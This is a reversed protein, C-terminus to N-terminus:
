HGLANDADSLASRYAGCGILLDDSLPLVYSSKGKVTGTVLNIINYEVWGGGQECRHWADDLLQQADVGPADFLSTGVRKRDAGMIRYIGQRDFVFVYLDRDVFGGQPDHLVDAAADFGIEQVLAHARTTLVLAEDATGQRLKIYTVADELQRSRQMLRASRHSTRDVLGSNEITVKDLDGVAQVVEALAISQKASGDAMAEVNQAIESIGTVLSGMLNSVDRIEQVTASVRSASDAILSRVEGAAVQSRRALARVEAAVVAFGKGQEGARAAEVAANLALLNTQFAIGDITGIIERMRDSTSQLGAMAGVTKGMLSSANDAELRLSRTMLSVEQAAESNRAVTDSVQGVNSTAEELSVAQSQTRQSLSHGDEVLQGGVHTVMSSASRVDAVLTSLVELMAEFERSIQALEDQGPVVVRTALNGQTGEQIARHLISISNVTAVSFCVLLYMVALIGVTALTGLIIAQRLAFQQRQELRGVLMTSAETRFTRGTEIAKGSLAFLAESIQPSSEKGVQDRLAQTLASTASVAETGSPPITGKGARQFAEFKENVLQTRLDVQDTTGALAAFAQRDAAQGQWIALFARMNSVGELWPIALETLVAQLFYTDPFPDLVLTSNEGILLSMRRLAEVLKLYRSAAITDNDGAEAVAQLEPQIAGWTGSLGLKPQQGVTADVQRVLAKLQERTKARMQEFEPQTALLSEVRHHQVETVLDTVQSIAKAGLVESRATEFDGLLRFVQLYTVVVLPVVLIAAMVALKASMRFRQMLAVGPALWTGAKM